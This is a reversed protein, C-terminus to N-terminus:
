TGDQSGSDNSSRSHGTTSKLHGAAREMAMVIDQIQAHIVGASAAPDYTKAIIKPVTDRLVTGIEAITVDKLHQEVTAGAGPNRRELQSEFDDLFKQADEFDYATTGYV